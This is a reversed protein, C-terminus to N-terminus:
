QSVRAYFGRYCGASRSATQADPAGGRDAIPPVRYVDVYEVDDEDRRVTILRDGDVSAIRTRARLRVTDLVTGNPAFRVWETPADDREPSLAVWLAGATDGALAAFAPRTSPIIAHEAFAAEIRARFDPSSRKSRERALRAREDDSVHRVALPLSIEERDHDDLGVRWVRASDSFAVVISSDCTVVHLARGLPFGFVVGAAGRGTAYKQWGPFRGLSTSAGDPVYRFLEVTDVGMGERVAMRPFTRSTVLFSGDAFRGIVSGSWEVLTDLGAGRVYRGDPAFWSLRRTQMDFALITDPPAVGIWWLAFFEGPGGGRRGITALHRERESFIRIESTAADAVAIRGGSLGIAGRIDSFEQPGGLSNGLTVVPQMAVAQDASAGNVGHGPGADGCALSVAVWVFTCGRVARDRWAASLERM